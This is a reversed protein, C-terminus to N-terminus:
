ARGKAYTPYILINDNNNLELSNKEKYESAQFYM